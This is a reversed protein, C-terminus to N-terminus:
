ERHSLGQMAWMQAEQLKTRVISRERGEPMREEVMVAIHTIENRIALMDSALATGPKVTIFGHDRKAQAVRARRANQSHLEGQRADDEAALGAVLPHDKTDTM